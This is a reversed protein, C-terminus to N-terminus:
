IQKSYAITTSAVECVAIMYEMFTLCAALKEQNDKYKMISNICIKEITNQTAFASFISIESMAKAFNTVTRVWDIKDSHGALNSELLDTAQRFKAVNSDLKTRIELTMESNLNALQQSESVPNQLENVQNKLSTLDSKMLINVFEESSATPHENKMVDIHKSALSCIKEMRVASERGSNGFASLIKLLPSEASNGFMKMIESLSPNSKTNTQEAM